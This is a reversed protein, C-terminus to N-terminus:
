TAEQMEKTQWKGSRYLIICFVAEAVWSIAWGAYVGHIGFIPTLIFSAAIRVVTGFTSSTVLLRTSKIGKFLAHFINNLVNFVIWPLYLRAFIAALTLSEQTVGQKFFLGCVADPFVACVILLPLAFLLSQRMIIFLGRRIHAYKKQGICQAAFNAFVKTSHQYISANIDYIRAVVAYAASASKGIGNVLPSVAATAVYMVGQQFMSPLAYPLTGKFYGKMTFKVRSVGLERFISHLKILYAVTVVFASFVSSLAVGAVGWGLVLVSLLNGGINLVCSIISMYLPFSSIGLANLLYVGLWTMNLLLLGSIYICFYRTADDFLLPDVRLLTLLPRCFVVCLISIVAAVVSQVLLSAIITNRLQPKNGEGFLRAAYIGCGTGYGWFPSHILSIIGATAGVAGLGTDGLFKGIIITDILSYAQSLMGALITPIAFMLFNRSINGSTLDKM